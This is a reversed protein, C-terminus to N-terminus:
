QVDARSKWRALQGEDKRLCSTCLWLATAGQRIETLDAAADCFCSVCAPDRKELAKAALTFCSPCLLTYWRHTFLTRLHVFSRLERTGRIALVADCVSCLPRGAANQRYHGTHKGATIRRRPFKPM